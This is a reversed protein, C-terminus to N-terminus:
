ISINKDYSLKCYIHVYFCLFMFIFYIYYAQFSILKFNLKKNILHQFNKNFYKFNYFSQKIEHNPLNFM